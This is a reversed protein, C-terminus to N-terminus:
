RISVNLFGKKKIQDLVEPLLKDGVAAIVLAKLKYIDPLTSVEKVPVGCLPEPIKEGDSVAFYDVKFKEGAKELERLVRTGIRGAGYIIIHQYPETMERYKRTIEREKQFDQESGTVIFMLKQFDFDKLDWLFPFEKELEMQRIQEAMFM